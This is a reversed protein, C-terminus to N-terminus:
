EETANIIDEIITELPREEEMSGAIDNVTWMREETPAEEVSAEEASVETEESAPEDGDTVEEAIPLAAEEDITPAEILNGESTLLQPLSTRLASALEAYRRASDEAQRINEQILKDYGNLLAAYAEIQAQVDSMKQESDQEAEKVITRAYQYAEDVMIESDRKAADLDVQAQELLEGAQRQADSITRDAVATADTLTKGICREREEIGDVKKQLEDNVRELSLIQQELDAIKKTQVRILEKKRMRM